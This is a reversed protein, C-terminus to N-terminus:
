TAINCNRRVWDASLAAGIFLSYFLTTGVIDNSQPLLLLGAVCLLCLVEIASAALRRGSALLLSTIILAFCCPYYIACGLYSDRSLSFLSVTALSWLLFFLIALVSGVSVRVSRSTAADLRNM